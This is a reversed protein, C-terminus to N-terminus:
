ELDLGQIHNVVESDPLFQIMQFSENDSELFRESIDALSVVGVAVDTLAPNSQQVAALVNDADDKSFFLSFITEEAESTTVSLPLYGGSSDQLAFLPVLSSSVNGGFESDLARAAAFDDKQPIFILRLPVEREERALRHVTALDIIGVSGGQNFRPNEERVQEVFSIVDAESFFVRLLAVNGLGDNPPDSVPTVYGGSRDILVFVPVDAFKDLLEGEPLAMARPTHLATAILGGGLLGCVFRGFTAKM